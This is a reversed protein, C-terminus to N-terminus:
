PQASLADLAGEVVVAPTPEDEGDVSGSKSAV